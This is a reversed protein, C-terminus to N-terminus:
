VNSLATIKISMKSYLNIYILCKSFRRNVRYLHRWYVLSSSTVLRSLISHLKENFSNTYWKINQSRAMYGPPIHGFIIAQDFTLHYIFLICSSHLHTCLHHVATYLSAYPSFFLLGHNNYLCTQVACYFCISTYLMFLPTYRQHINITYLILTTTYNIFLLLCFM